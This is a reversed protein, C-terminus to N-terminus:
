FPVPRESTPAVTHFGPHVPSGRDRPHDYECQDRPSSGDDLPIPRLASELPPRLWLPGPQVGDHTPRPGPIPHLHNPRVGPGFHTPDFGVNDPTSLSEPRVHRM